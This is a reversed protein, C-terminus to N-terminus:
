QHSPKHRSNQVKMHVTNSVLIGSEKGWFPDVKVTAKSFPCRYKVVISYRGPRLNMLNMPAFYTTGLSHNPRLKIYDSYEDSPALPPEDPILKPEIEKGASDYIFFMLTGSYGWALRGFMYFEKDSINTVMVNLKFQDNMGYTVKSSVISLELAPSNTAREVTKSDTKSLTKANTVIVTTAALLVLLGFAKM